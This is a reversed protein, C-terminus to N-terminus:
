YLPEDTHNPLLRPCKCALFASVLGTAAAAKNLAEVGSFNAGALFVLTIDVFVLLILLIWSSRTAAVTFILSVILWAVVILGIAIPFQPSLEGTKADIYAALIGSDPVFILAYAM